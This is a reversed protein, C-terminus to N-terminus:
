LLICVLSPRETGKQQESIQQDSEQDSMENEWNLVEVEKQPSVSITHDAQLDSDPFATAGAASFMTNDSPHTMSQTGTLQSTPRVPQLVPIEGSSTVSLPLVLLLQHLLRTVSLLSASQDPSLPWQGIM